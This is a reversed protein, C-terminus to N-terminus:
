SSFRENYQQVLSARYNGEEFLWTYVEKGGLIPVKQVLNTNAVQQDVCTTPVANTTISANRLETKPEAFHELMLGITNWATYVLDTYSVSVLPTNGAKVAELSAGGAIHAYVGVQGEKGAAAVAEAVPVGSTPFNTWIAVVDPEEALISNAAETASAVLNEANIDPVEAAVQIDKNEPLSLMGDLVARRPKVVEIKSDVVGIKIPNEHPHLKRLNRMMFEMQYVADAGICPSYDFVLSPEAPVGTYLGFVPINKEAAAAFQAAAFSPPVVLDIIGDVNTTVFSGFAQEAQAQAAQTDQVTFTWNLGIEKAAEELHYCLLPENEDASTYLGIGIKKNMYKAAIKGGSTNAPQAAVSSSSGSSGCAALVTGAIGASIGLQATRVMFRRRSVHGNVVDEAMSQVEARDEVSLQEESQIADQVAKRNRFRM